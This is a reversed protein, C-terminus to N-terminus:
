DSELQVENNLPYVPLIYEGEIAKFVRIYVDDESQESSALLRVLRVLNFSGDVMELPIAKEIFRLHKPFKKEGVQYRRVLSGDMIDDFLWEFTKSTKTDIVRVAREALTDDLMMSIARAYNKMKAEQEASPPTITIFACILNETPVTRIVDSIPIISFEDRTGETEFETRFHMIASIFASLMGEEFGGKFIKSFIPVGSLKHLVLFGLVNNADTFRNKLGMATSHKEKSRRSRVRQGAVAAVIITVGLGIQWSYTILTQFLRINPDFTPVLAASFSQVMAHNVKEVLIRVTYAGSESRPMPITVSYVGPSTELMVDSIYLVGGPRYVGLTVNAGTVPDGTDSEVIQVEIDLPTQELGVLSSISEVDVPVSDVLFSLFHSETEYGEKSFSLRLSYDGTAMPSITVEYHGDGTNEISAWQSGDETINVSANGDM